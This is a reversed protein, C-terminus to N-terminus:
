NAPEMLARYHCIVHKTVADTEEGVQDGLSDREFIVCRNESMTLTADRLCTWINAAIQKAEQYTGSAPRSWVHIPPFIEHGDVCAARDPIDQSEGITLYPFVPNAPVKQYIRMPSGLLSQLDASAKLAAVIATQLEWDPGLIATM